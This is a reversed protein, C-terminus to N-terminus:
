EIRVIWICPIIRSKKWKQKKSHQRVKYGLIADWECDQPWKRLVLIVPTGVGWAFLINGMDDKTVTSIIPNEINKQTKTYILENGKLM